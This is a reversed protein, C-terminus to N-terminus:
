SKSSNKEPAQWLHPFEAELHQDMSKYKVSETMLEFALQMGQEVCSNRYDLPVHPDSEFKLAFSERRDLRDALKRLLWAIKERWCKRDGPSQRFAFVYRFNLASM